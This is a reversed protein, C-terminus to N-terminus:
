RGFVYGAAALVGDSVLMRSAVFVSGGFTVAVALMGVLVLAGVQAITVSRPARERIVVDRLVDDRQEPMERHLPHVHLRSSSVEDRIEPYLPSDDAIYTLGRRESSFPRYVQAAPTPPAPPAPHSIPVVTEEERTVELAIPEEHPAVIPEHEISEAGLYDALSDAEVYWARGVKTGVVKGARILQGIYDSHYRHERAARRSSLYRKGSIDLEDM